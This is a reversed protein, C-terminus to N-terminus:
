GGQLVDGLLQGLLNYLNKFEDSSSLRELQSDMVIVGWFKGNVEVPIGCFSRACPKNERIRQQLWEKSVRTEKAYKSLNDDSSNIKLDPLKDIVRPGEVWVRGPIGEAASSEAESAWFRTSSRKAYGSRAVPVFWGSWPWRKKQGRLHWTHWDWNWTARKFLTVRHDHLNGEKFFHKQLNDLFSDIAAWTQPSKLYTSAREAVALYVACVPLMWGLDRAVPAASQAFEPWQEPVPRLLLGIIAAVILAIVQGARLAHYAWSYRRSLRM